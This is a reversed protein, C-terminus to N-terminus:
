ATNKAGYQVTKVFASMNDSIGYLLFQHIRETDNSATVKHFRKISDWNNYSSPFLWYICYKVHQYSLQQHPPM